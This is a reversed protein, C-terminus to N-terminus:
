FPAIWGGAIAKVVMETANRANFKAILRRRFTEVTNDSISLLAAIEHTNFGKAIAELVEQERRTPKDQPFVFASGHALKHRISVFRSCVYTEGFLVSYVANVLENGDSAKLVVANVASQVLRNVTWVEEHMTYVIIRAAPVRRRIREILEFGSIDILSIDLIFMDYEKHEIYELAKRGSTATDEVIVEPVRELVHCIGELVLSHDDVVLLRARAEGEM